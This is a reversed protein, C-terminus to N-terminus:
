ILSGLVQRRHGGLEEDAADLPGVPHADETQGQDQWAQELDWERHALLRGVQIFQTVQPLLVVGLGKATSEVRPELERPSQRGDIGGLLPHHRVFVSDLNGLVRGGRCDKRAGASLGGAVAVVGEVDADDEALLEVAPVNGALRDHVRGVHHACGSHPWRRGVFHHFHELQRLLRAQDM